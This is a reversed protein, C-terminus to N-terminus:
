PHSVFLSGMALRMPTGHLLLAGPAIFCLCASRMPPLAEAVSTQAMRSPRTSWSRTSPAISPPANPATM